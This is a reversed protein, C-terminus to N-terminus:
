RKVKFVYSGSLLTANLSGDAVSVASLGDIPSNLSTGNETVDDISQAPLTLKASTNAPVTFRYIVGDDCIEWGSYISGYMSDYHGNAYTMMGTPDIHPKLLFRSFAPASEDRMIGLSRSCMWEGVAGFSYHNFSNMGNNGGFGDTHTYSNLREWITTAGQKVSYLWSPYHVSHLLRYATDSFGNDTLADTIWATGIFGTLLSYPRWTSGFRVTDSREISGILNSRVSKVHNSNPIDFALPLVYSTQTDINKGAMEPIFKSYVTKGTHRDLYINNFFHRREGALARYKVADDNMGAVAAMKSMLDLDHIYYAEWLLSKDNAEDEPGLWDALDGWQRNQVILGTEPEMTNAAIYEIYRKMAPYHKVVLATDAYHCYVEWPVTIGASGWLIGGFGGGVPAIHPFMGDSTQVDRMATMYNDLFKDAKTMYVATPSFVSIDGAWGMRENRQPCDTPISMFNARSSWVINRWLRNIDASSTVYDATIAHMSSLVIGKVCDLSLAHDLGSIEIYRYGHYTGRPAFREKGGRAIYIDRNMAARINEVMLHNRRDKYEPLDPYTMEAFRMTVATGRPLGDFDIEPIGAFNQGMDYVWVGPSVEEVAVAKLRDVELVETGGCATLKLQSFDDIRPMERNGCTAVTYKTDVEAAEHWTSDDYKATAWGDFDTERGADYIEGQFFSSYRLPGDTCVRWTDPASVVTQETGDTYTIKIKGLFSQRDGFVNWNEGMFTSGGSWWGEYLQVGIANAGKDLLETIDYVQYLQTKNYQTSGPSFYSSNIRSGNIYLDYIGRATAYVRAKAIPKDSIEFTHRLMPMGRQPLHRFLMCGDKGGSVKVAPLSVISNSPSRFHSLIVDSFQAKGNVPLCYGIDGVVPYAIYDGGGGHPNLVFTDLTDADVSITTIGLNSAVRIEHPKESNKRTVSPIVFSKLALSERDDPHYGVRYINLRAHNGSDLPTVDFELKIYASDRGAHLGYENFESKMLREDNAGYIFSAKKTNGLLQVSYSLRFVPLYHAYLVMDDGNGGIWRANDWNAYAGQCDIALGTEFFSSATDRTGCEDVTEVRWSYRTAPMLQAGRYTIGVSKPSSIDGTDWVTMGNEDDVVIRYSKQMQGRRSHDHKMKWGFRPNPEDIGVPESQYEVTLEIPCASVFIAPCLAVACFLSTIFRNM